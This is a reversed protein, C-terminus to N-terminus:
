LGNEPTLQQKFTMVIFSADRPDQPVILDRHNALNELLSAQRDYHANTSRRLKEPAQPKPKHRKEWHFERTLWNGLAYLRIDSITDNDLLRSIEYPGYRRYGHYRHEVFSPIAPVLHMHTLTCPTETRFLNFIDKDFEIHELVSQSFVASNGQIHITQRGLESTSFQVKDSSYTAWDPKPAIDYGHYNSYRMAQQLHQSYNGSGCGLDVLNANAGFTAQAKNLLFDYCLARTPNVDHVQQGFASTLRSIDLEPKYSECPVPFNYFRSRLKEFLISAKYGAKQVPTLPIDGCINHFTSKIGLHKGAM